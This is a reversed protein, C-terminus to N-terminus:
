LGIMTDDMQEDQHVPSDDEHEHGLDEQKVHAPPDEHM